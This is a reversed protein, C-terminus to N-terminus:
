LNDQGSNQYRLIHARPDAGPRTSMMGASWKEGLRNEVWRLSGDFLRFRKRLRQVFLAFPLSTCVLISLGIALFITSGPIPTFFLVIMVVAFVTRFFRFM